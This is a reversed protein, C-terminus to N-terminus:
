VAVCQLVNCRDAQIMLVCGKLIVYLFEANDGEEFVFDGSKLSNLTAVRCLAVRVGLSLRATISTSTIMGALEQHQTHTHTLRHTYTHTHKHTHTHTRTHTHTHTHM